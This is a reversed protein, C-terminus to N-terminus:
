LDGVVAFIQLERADRLLQGLRAADESGVELADLQGVEGAIGHGLNGVLGVVADLADAVAVAQDDPEEGM